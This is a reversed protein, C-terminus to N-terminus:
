TASPLPVFCMGYKDSIPKLSGYVRISVNNKVFSYSDNKGTVRLYLQNIDDKINKIMLSCNKMTKDGILKTKTRYQKLVYADIPHYIFAHKVEVKTDFARSIPVKWYLQVKDTQQEHPYNFTCQITVTAGLTANIFSPVDVSWEQGKANVTLILILSLELLKLLDLFSM